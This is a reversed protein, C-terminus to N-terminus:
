KLKAIVLVPNDDYDLSKLSEKEKFDKIDDIVEAAEKLSVLCNSDSRSGILPEFTLGNLIDDKFGPQNDDLTNYERKTAKDYVFYNLANKYAYTIIILKDSEFIDRVCLSKAYKQIDKYDEKGNNNGGGIIQYAPTMNLHNDLQYVYETVANKYFNKGGYQYFFPFNFLITNDKESKVTTPKKNIIKGKEDILFLEDNKKNGGIRNYMFNYCIFNNGEKTLSWSVVKMPIKEIFKGDYSYKNFRKANADIIYVYEKDAYFSISYIYEEPGEGRTGITNLFKGNCDFRYFKQAKQDCVIIDKEGVFVQLENSLLCEDTTELPVYQLKEVFNSLPFSSNKDLNGLLDISFKQSFSFLPFLGLCIILIFSKMHM